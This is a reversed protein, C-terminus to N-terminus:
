VGDVSLTTLRESLTRQVDVASVGTAPECAIFRPDRAQAVNVSPHDDLALWGNLGRRKVEALIEESRSTGYSEVVGVFRTALPGLLRILTADDFLRRWDSSVIIGIMPYPALLRELIPRWVFLGPDDVM